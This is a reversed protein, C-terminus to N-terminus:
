RTGFIGLSTTPSRSWDLSLVHSINPSATQCAVLFNIVSDASRQLPAIEFPSVKSHPQDASFRRHNLGSARFGRFRPEVAKRVIKGATELNIDSIETRLLVFCVQEPFM